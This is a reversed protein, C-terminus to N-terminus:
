KIEFNYKGSGVQLVAQGNEFRLLKIGKIQNILKGGETIISNSVAPLYIIATTNAPIVTTLQFSNNIKKWDSIILGYPSIYSAKASTVDGVPQPRIEIEKFAITNKAQRIGALGSYFWEKIHGLMMHNNSANEYAQWSETLATAGRKLQYGYGPVADNSNMDYIVDSRGNDDLVRLLYRYGIDGATLSNNRSRLEKVINDVVADKYQPEVLNMYVSMANSTQSGTGYQITTKNFFSNNYSTKVKEAMSSYNIVDEQKGLLKAVKSMITLDYYYIATATIGRPTLQSPGPEKPGIDYWDGLGHSLIGDKSKSQLYTIYRQMMPYAEELLQTDGYWEYVYWPMIISNSGWEPSDRFPGGFIAYEPATSPILGDATQANMMDRVVKRCLAAIDYDYRISPGVLHAEELWGLKERHPCDTLVSSMNSRIAWDILVDTQNFMKNSSSFEGVRAAANRTHLGNLSIIVPLGNENVEGQPVAGTVQVYRFGYYMFQPQWTEVGDGKLTYDFYVPTGIPQTTITGDKALLEAPWLRVTTGKKGKVSISPIGSANQGLDYVWVGPKPQTIKIPSFTDFIKIPEASQANLVPPGDITIANKWLNDNFSPTDWGKQELMANYDEGGYISSFTVPGAATKWSNNSIINESTGDAYELMMRCIMKPFGYALQLKLYREGPIFYFGNGLMVGIANKGKKLQNTVDFSVYLAQKEYDVWGADLFHDGAKKGNVSLDFHGLGAIFVTAKKVTKNVAVEKRLLPLVDKILSRKSESGQTKLRMSDPMKEYAIWNAGKWDAATLLGMQWKAEKSWASTNGKNDWTMIKWYYTKAAELKKGAYLVQISRDSLVKKSDWVNGINKKLSVPNDSVLIRYATQTSNREAAIIQWSLKPNQSEVGLPDTLYECQLNQLMTKQCFLPLTIALLVLLLLFKNCVTKCNDLINKHKNLIL